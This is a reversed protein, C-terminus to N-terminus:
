VSVSRFVETLVLDGPLFPSFAVTMELELELPGPARQQGRQADATYPTRLYFCRPMYFLHIFRLFSIFFDYIKSPLPQPYSGPQTPHYHPLYCQSIKWPVQIQNGAGVYCTMTDIDGTGPSGAFVQEQGSCVDPM